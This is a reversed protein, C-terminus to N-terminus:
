QDMANEEVTFRQRGSGVLRQLAVQHTQRGVKEQMRKLEEEPDVSAETAFDLALRRGLLHTHKLAKIAKEAEKATVFEAFAFGRASSDFKKPVRVSRLQGYSGFLSRVEKKTIEFPLNKIIIKSHKGATRRARDEERTEEGADIPRHAAKVLLRHGDLNYNDLTSAAHQAQSKSRFELFGFGMSLVEGPKKSDPKTKVRASMFGDLSNCIEELRKTTTSFNLNRVFLTSTEVVEGDTATNLLESSSIKTEVVGFYESDKPSHQSSRHFMGKPGKELFLVSNKFRRYALNSFAARAQSAGAFEVIAITGSPPILLRVLQGYQEFMSKLESNSTGYPFNKVLIGTDGRECGRFAELNVGKSAFFEQTEQIVHTEAHAQRIASDTSTPDIIDSKPIRLRDAISSM